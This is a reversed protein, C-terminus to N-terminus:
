DKKKLINQTVVWYMYWMCVVYDRFYIERLLAFFM